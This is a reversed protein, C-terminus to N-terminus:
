EDGLEGIVRLYAEADALDERRTQRYGERAFTALRSREWRRVADEIIKSKSRKTEQAHRVIARYLFPAITVGLKERNGQRM